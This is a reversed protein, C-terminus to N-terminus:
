VSVTLGVKVNFYELTVFCLGSVLVRAYTLYIGKVYTDPYLGSGLGLGLLAFVVGSM